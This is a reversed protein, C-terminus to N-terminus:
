TTTRSPRLPVTTRRISIAFRKTRKQPNSGVRCVYRTSDISSPTSGLSGPRDKMSLWGSSATVPAASPPNGRDVQAFSVNYVAYARKVAPAGGAPEGKEPIAGLIRHVARRLDGLDPNPIARAVDESIRGYGRLEYGTEPYGAVAIELIRVPEGEQIKYTEKTFKVIPATIENKTDIDSM